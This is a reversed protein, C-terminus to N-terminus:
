ESSASIEILNKRSKRYFAKLNRLLRILNKHSGWQSILPFNVVCVNFLYYIFYYVSTNNWRIPPYLNMTEMIMMYKIDLFMQFYDNPQTLSSLYGPVQQSVTTSVTTQSKNYIGCFTTSVDKFGQTKNWAATTRTSNM